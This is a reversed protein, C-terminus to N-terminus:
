YIEEFPNILFELIFSLFSSAFTNYQETVSDYLIVPNYKGANLVPIGTGTTICGVEADRDHNCFHAGWGKHFCSTINNEEGNCDVNALWVQGSGHPVKYRELTRVADPYSLQRCM